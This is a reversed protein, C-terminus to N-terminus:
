TIECAWCRNPATPSFEQRLLNEAIGATQGASNYSQRLERRTSARRGSSCMLRAVRNRGLRLGNAKLEQHERPAGYFSRHREFVAQLQATIVASEQARPGPNHQRQPWAYFGSRAM